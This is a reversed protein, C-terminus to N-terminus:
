TQSGVKPISSVFLALLAIVGGLVLFTRRDNREIRDISAVSSLPVLESASSAGHRHGGYVGGKIDGILLERGKPMVSSAIYYDGDVLTILYSRGSTKLDTYESPAVRTYKTCSLALSTALLLALLRRARAWKFSGHAKSSMLRSLKTKAM